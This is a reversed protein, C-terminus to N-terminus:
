SLDLTFKMDSLKNLARVSNEEGSIEDNEAIWFILIGVFELWDIIEQSPRKEFVLAKTIKHTKNYKRLEVFEYDFLQGIGMRTQKRENENTISKIEFLWVEKNNKAVLDTRGLWFCDVKRSELFNVMAHLTRTHQANAQELKIEDVYYVKEKVRTDNGRERIGSLAEIEDPTINREADADREIHHEEIEQKPLLEFGANKTTDFLLDFEEDSFHFEDKFDKVTVSTRGKVIKDSAGFYVVVIIPVLPLKQIKMRNRFLYVISDVTWSTRKYIYRRSSSPIQQLLKPYDYRNCTTDSAFKCRDNDLRYKCITRDERLFIPDSIIDDPAFCSIGKQTNLPNRWVNGDSRQYIGEFPKAVEGSHNGMRSDHKNWIESLLKVIDSQWIGAYLSGVLPIEDEFRKMALFMQMDNKKVNNGYQNLAFFCRNYLDYDTIAISTGLVSDSIVHNM